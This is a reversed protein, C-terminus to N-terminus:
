DFSVTLQILRVNWQLLTKKYSLRSLSQLGNGHERRVRKELKVAYTEQFNSEQERKTTECAKTDTYTLYSFSSTLQLMIM